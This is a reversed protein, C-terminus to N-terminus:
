RRRRATLAVTALGETDSAADPRAPDAARDAARDPSRGGGPTAPAPSADTIAATAIVAAAPPGDSPASSDADSSKTSADSTPAPRTAPLVAVASPRLTPAPRPTEGSGGHVFRPCHVHAPGLCMLEVQRDSVAIAPALALCDAHGGQLHLYRCSGPPAVARALAVSADTPFPWASDTATLGAVGSPEQSPGPDLAAVREDDEHM